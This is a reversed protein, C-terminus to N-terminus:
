RTVSVLLTRDREYTLQEIARPLPWWAVDDVEDDPEREATSVPHMLYYRVTKERGRGDRYAVTGVDRVIEAEVGTEEILERCAATAEDEGPDLKGKPFSWDDYAPRHVVLVCPGDGEDRLVIGGAARVGSV